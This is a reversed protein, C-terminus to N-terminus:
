LLLMELDLRSQLDQHSTPMEGLSHWDHGAALHDAQFEKGIEVRHSKSVSSHGPNSSIDPDAPEPDPPYALVLNERSVLTLM